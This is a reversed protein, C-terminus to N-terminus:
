KGRAAAQAARLITGGLEPSLLKLDMNVQAASKKILGLARIFSRPFRLPSIQFNLEARRTQAGYFADAPVEMVGMSDRETRTTALATRESNPFRFVSVNFGGLERPFLRIMTDSK